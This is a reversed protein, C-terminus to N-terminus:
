QPLQVFGRFFNRWLNVQSAYDNQAATALGAQSITERDVKEEAIERLRDAMAETDEAPVLFGNKGDEILDTAQGVPTSVLPVGSAMSELVAKPGGEQRSSVLYADLAGYLKRVEEAEKLHIHAFPIGREQLGKKVYGRAPGSLLVFLRPLRSHLKQCAELLLDPGKILKPENGEEWGQGDKQFSGLVFSNQDLGLERRIEKKGSESVPKFLTTDIGIPILHIRDASVGVAELAQAMARHTVQVRHLQDKHREVKAFLADFDKYGTGPLGHFFSTANRHDNNLWDDTLLSFQSGWFVAQKRSYRQWYNEHVTRIGLKQAIVGLAEMDKDISWGAQDRMLILRSFDNWFCAKTRLLLRATNKLM